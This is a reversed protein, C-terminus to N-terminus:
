MDITNSANKQSQMNKAEWIKTNPMNVKTQITSRQNIDAKQKLSPRLLRRFAGETPAFRQWRTFPLDKTTTQNTPNLLFAGLLLVKGDIM